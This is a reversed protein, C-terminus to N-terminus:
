SSPLNKTRPSFVERGGSTWINRWYTNEKGYHETNSHALLWHLWARHEWVELVCVRKGMLQNHWANNSLLLFSIYGGNSLHWHPGSCGFGRGWRVSVLLSRGHINVPASVPSIVKVAMQLFHASGEMGRQSLMTGSLIWNFYLSSPPTVSGYYLRFINWSITEISFDNTMDPVSSRLSFLFNCEFQTLLLMVLFLDLLSKSVATIVVSRCAILFM